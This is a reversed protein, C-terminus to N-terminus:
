SLFSGILDPYGNLFEGIPLNKGGELQVEELIIMGDSVQVAVKGNLSFVEGLHHKINADNKEWAIKNLKLRKSKENRKWFVFIGPWPSLARYQNFIQEAESTLIVRGDEKEILQCLTAESENQEQIKIKREM